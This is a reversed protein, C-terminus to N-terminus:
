MIEDFCVERQVWVVNLFMKTLSNGESVLFTEGLESIGCSIIACGVDKGVMMLLLVLQWDPLYFFLRVEVTGSCGGWFFANKQRYNHDAQGFVM